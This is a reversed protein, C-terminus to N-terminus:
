PKRRDMRLYAMWHVPLRHGNSFPPDLGFVPQGGQVASSNQSSEIEICARGLGLHIESTLRPPHMEKSEISNVKRVKKQKKQRPERMSDLM